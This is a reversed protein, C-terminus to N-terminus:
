SRDPPTPRYTDAIDGDGTRLITITGARAAHTVALVEKPDDLSLTLTLTRRSGLSSGAATVDAVLVDDAIVATWGDSGGGGYTAAVDVHEGRAINGDLARSAEISFSVQRRRAGDTTTVDSAQLLEGRELPGLLRAGVLERPDAFAQRRLSSPLDLTVTALDGRRLVSGVTLTRAAVVYPTTPAANAARWSAFLGVAAVAVLLGGAVARGNPLPRRRRVTRGAGNGNAFDAAPPALLARSPVFRTNWAFRGRV